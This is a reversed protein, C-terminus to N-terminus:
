VVSKRDQLGATDMRTHLEALGAGIDEGVRDPRVTRRLEFVTGPVTDTVEIQYSM